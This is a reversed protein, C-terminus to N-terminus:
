TLISQMCTSSDGSSQVRPALSGRPGSTILNQSVPYRAGIGARIEKQKSHFRGPRADRLAPGSTM